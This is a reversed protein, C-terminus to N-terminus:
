KQSERTFLNTSQVAQLNRSVIIEHHAIRNRLTKISDFREFVAERDPKRLHPFAKYLHPVWLSKEYDRSILRIWFGFTLEAVVRGPTIARSWRVINAKAERVTEIERYRLPSYEYWNSRGTGTALIRHISNRFAIELPQIVGYLSQSLLTSWEYLQVARFTDSATKALYSSLREKSIARTLNGLADASYVFPM